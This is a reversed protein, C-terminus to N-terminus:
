ADAALVRLGSYNWGREGMGDVSVPLFAKEIKKKKM